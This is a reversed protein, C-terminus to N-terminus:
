YVDGSSMLNLVEICGDRVVKLFITRITAKDLSFQKKKQYNYLFRELYDELSEEKSHQMKFIDNRADRARCYDHYKQLFAEKMGDWSLITHEGLSM